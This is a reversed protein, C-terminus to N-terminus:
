NTNAYLVFHDAIISILLSTNHRYARESLICVTDQTPNQLHPGDTKGAKDGLGKWILKAKLNKTEEIETKQQINLSSRARM